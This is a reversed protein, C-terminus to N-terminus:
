YRVRPDLWAYSIDVILNIVVQVIGLVLVVGQMMIFDRENVSQFLLLGLGPLNFISEIIVIGGVLGSFQAGAVTVVPLLANKLAHNLIVYRENFGKAWATQIYDQRLVDLMSSRVIRMMGASSSIGILVAPILFQKLNGLPDEMIPRYQLSPLFNFWRAGFAILLIALWFTPVSLGAIAALRLGYDSFTDQRVASVIGLTIGIMNITLFSLLGLEFSIPWKSLIEGRVSKGSWLSNGLDGRVVGGIWDAFQVYVPRDIGMQARIRDIDEQRFSPSDFLQETVIDGPLLNVMGFAIISVVLMTPVMLAVRRAIYAQM